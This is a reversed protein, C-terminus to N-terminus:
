WRMSQSLVEVASVDDNTVLSGVLTITTEKGWRSTPRMQSLSLTAPLSRKGRRRPPPISEGALETKGGDRDDGPLPVILV